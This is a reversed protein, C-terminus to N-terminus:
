WIAQCFLYYVKLVFLSLPKLVIVEPGGKSIRILKIEMM